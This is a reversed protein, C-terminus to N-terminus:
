TPPRTPAPLHAAAFAADETRPRMGTLRTVIRELRRFADLAALPQNWWGTLICYHTAYPADHHVDHAARDLVLRCRQLWRVVRPPAPHHAWQHVQNVPLTWGALSVLFVGATLWPEAQVPMALTAALVIGAVVATDGNCDVFSRRLLDDPNVHHLRFPRLVRPGIVPWRESGWTDAAWHVLGSLLDAIMLGLLVVLLHWPGIAPAAALRVTAAVLLLPAVILASALVVRALGRSSEWRPLPPTAASAPMTCSIPQHM